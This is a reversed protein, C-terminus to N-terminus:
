YWVRQNLVTTVVTKAIKAIAIDISQTIEKVWYFVHFVLWKVVNTVFLLLLMVENCRSEEYSIM